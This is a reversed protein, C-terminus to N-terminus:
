KRGISSMLASLQSVLSSLASLIHNLSNGSQGSQGGSGMQSSGQSLYTKAPNNGQPAGNNQQSDIIPPKGWTLYPLPGSLQPGVSIGGGFGFVFAVSPGGVPISGGADASYSSINKSIRGGYVDALEASVNISAVRQHPVSEGPAWAVEVGGGGGYAVGGGMFGVIGYKDIQIGASFSRGPIMINGSIEWYRGAPDKLTIPNDRGWSYSNMQQPDALFAQQSISTIDQIKSPDGVALFSPDQSVFQGRSNDYYRAQAYDLGTASDREMSDFKRKEGSYGGAKNDIRAAGYPYYDLTEMGAGSTNTVLNTGGLHDALDYYITGTAGQITAVPIGNAFIHKVTTSTAGLTVNYAMTPFITSTGNEVLKVRQGLYDYAYTSSGTQLVSQTMQNRYNWTNTANGSSLLNGNQDYAFTKTSTGLTIGTMADPDAYSSGQNGQYSYTGVPGSLINGLADYSFTQFYNQGSVVNSSSATMLRNLADYTYDVTRAASSTSNDVIKTINGNADYAYSICQINSSNCNAAAAITQESFNVTTTAIFTSTATIDYLSAVVTMNVPVGADSYDGSYLTKPVNVGSLLQTGSANISSSAENPQSIGWSVQIKYSNTSTVNKANLQWNSFTPTTTGNTPFTFLVPSWIFDTSTTSSGFPQWASAGNNQPDIIRAQWHYNGNTGPPNGAYLNGVETATLARSFLAADDVQGDLYYQDYPGNRGIWLGTPTAYGSSYAPHAVDSGNWYIRLASGDYVLAYHYWVGTTITQASFANVYTSGGLYMQSFVQYTGANNQIGSWWADSPAANGEAAFIM